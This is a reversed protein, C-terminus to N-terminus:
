NHSTFLRAYSRAVIPLITLEATTDDIKAVCPQSHLHAPGKTIQGQFVPGTESFHLLGTIKYPDGSLSFGDLTEESSAVDFLDIKM